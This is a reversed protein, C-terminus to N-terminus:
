SGTEVDRLEGNNGEMELTWEEGGNMGESGWWGIKVWVGIMGLEGDVVTDDGPVGVGSRLGAWSLAMAFLYAGRTNCAESPAM